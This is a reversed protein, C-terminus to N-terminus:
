PVYMYHFVLHGYCFVFCTLVTIILFWGGSMNLPCFCPVILCLLCGNRYWVLLFRLWLLLPVVCVWIWKVRLSCGQSSFCSAPSLSWVIRLATGDPGLPLLVVWQDSYTRQYEELFFKLMSMIDMFLLLLSLFFVFYGSFPGTTGQVELTSPCM